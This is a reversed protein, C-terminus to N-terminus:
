TYAGAVPQAGRGQVQEAHLDVRNRGPDILHFVDRYGVEIAPLPGQAVLEPVQM